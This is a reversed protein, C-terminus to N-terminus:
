RTDAIADFVYSGLEVHRLVDIARFRFPNFCGEENGETPLQRDVADRGIQTHPNTECHDATAAAAGDLPPTDIEEWGVAADWPQGSHSRPV